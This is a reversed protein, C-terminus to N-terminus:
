GLLRILASVFIILMMAGIWGAVLGIFETASMDARRVRRSPTVPRPTAEMRLGSPIQGRM